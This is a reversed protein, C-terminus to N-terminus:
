MWVEEESDSDSLVIQARHALASAAPAVDDEEELAARSVLDHVQGETHSEKSATCKEAMTRAAQSVGRSLVDTRTRSRTPVLPTPLLPCVTVLEDRERKSEATIRLKHSKLTVTMENDGDTTVQAGYLPM